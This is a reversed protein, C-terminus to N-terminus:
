MQSVMNDDLIDVDRKKASKAMLMSQESNDYQYVSDERPATQTDSDTYTSRKGAPASEEEEDSIEDDEDETDPETDSPAMIALCETVIEYKRDSFELKYWAALASEYLYKWRLGLTETKGVREFTCTDASKSKALNRVEFVTMPTAFCPDNYAKGSFTLKLFNALNKYGKVVYLFNTGDTFFGKIFVFAMRNTKDNIGDVDELLRPNIFPVLSWEVELKDVIGKKKDCGTWVWIQADSRLLTELNHPVPM